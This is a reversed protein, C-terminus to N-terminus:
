TGPDLSVMDDDFHIHETGIAPLLRGLEEQSPVQQEEDTFGWAKVFPYVTPDFAGATMESVSVAQMLLEKVDAPLVASGKHNLTYVPSESDTVSLQKELNIIENEVASLAEKEDWIKIDIVTDMAFFNREEPGKPACGTLLLALILLPIWVKKM